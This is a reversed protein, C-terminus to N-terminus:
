LVTEGFALGVAWQLAHTYIHQQYSFPLIGCGSECETDANIWKSRGGTVNRLMWALPADGTM